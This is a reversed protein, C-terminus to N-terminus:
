SIALGPIVEEHPVMLSLKNENKVALIMGESVVGRITRPEMNCVFAVQKGVLDEPKEFFERIGSVVTRTEEEGLDVTLKLLKDTDPVVEVEKIEGIRMDVKKFEDYSIM